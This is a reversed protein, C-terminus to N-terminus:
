RAEDEKYKGDYNWCVRQQKCQDCDEALSAAWSCISAFRTAAAAAFSMCPVDGCGYETARNEVNSM